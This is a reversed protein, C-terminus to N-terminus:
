FTRPVSTWTANPSRSRRGRHGDLTIETEFASPPRIAGVRTGRDDRERRPGGSRSARGYGRAWANARISRRCGSSAATTTPSRRRRPRGRIDSRLPDRGPDRPRARRARDRWTVGDADDGRETGSGARVRAISAPAECSRCSSRRGVRRDVSLVLPGPPPWCNPWDTGAIALRLRHGPVLTWTTAELDIRSTSGSARRSRRRRGASTATAPRGALLRRTDPRADRTHDAGLHRRARRRVVQGLRARVGSGLRDAAVSERARGARRRTDIPWECIISRADDARQDQPQGWPLTGGCSNWAAIGVDGRVALRRRHGRDDHRGASPRDTGAAAVHRSRGLSRPHFPSTPNPRPPRACTCRRTRADMGAPWRASPPRLLRRDRPRRRHEPGAPGSGSSQHVWPGAILRWPLGNRGYQEVVRFTNNRYGDAWGAVLM